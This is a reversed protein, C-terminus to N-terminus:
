EERIVRVPADELLVDLEAKVVQMGALVKRRLRLDHASIARSSPTLGCRILWIRLFSRMAYFHARPGLSAPRPSGGLRNTVGRGVAWFTRGPPPYGRSDSAVLAARWRGGLTFDKDGDWWLAM